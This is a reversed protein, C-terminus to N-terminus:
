KCKLGVCVRSIERDNSARHTQAPKCGVFMTVCTAYM